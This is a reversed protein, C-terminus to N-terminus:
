AALRAPKATPVPMITVHLLAGQLLKGSTKLIQPLEATLNQALRGEGGLVPHCV